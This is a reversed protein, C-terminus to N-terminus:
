MFGATSTVQGVGLSSPDSPSPSSSSPGLRSLLGAFDVPPEASGHHPGRAMVAQLVACVADVKKELADNEAETRSIRDQLAAMPTVSPNVFITDQISTICMQTLSNTGAIGQTSFTIGMGFWFETQSTIVFATTFATSGLLYTFRVFPSPLVGTGVAGNVTYPSGSLDYVGRIALGSSDLNSNMFQDFVVFATGNAFTFAANNLLMNATVLFTGAPCRWGTRQSGGADTFSGFTVFPALNGRSTAPQVSAGAQGGALYYTNTASPFTYPNVFVDTTSAGPMFADDLDAKVDFEFEYCFVITGLSDITTMDIDASCLLYFDGPSTLRPDSGDAQTYKAPSSPDVAIGACGVSWVNCIDSFQHALAAKIASDGALTFDEDADAVCFLVLQGATLTATAPQYMASLKTLKFNQWLRAQVQLQTGAWDTSMPNLSIKAMVDGARWFNGAPPNGISRIEECGPWNVGVVRSGSQKFTPLYTGTAYKAVSVASAVGVSNSSALDPVGPVGAAKAALNTPAHGALLVPLVHPAIQAAVKAAGRLFSKVGGEHKKKKKHKSADISQAPPAWRSISRNPASSALSPSARVTTRLQPPPTSLKKSFQPKKSPAKGKPQSSMEVGASYKLVGPRTLM